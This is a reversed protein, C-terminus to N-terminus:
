NLDLVKRWAKYQERVEFKALSEELSEAKSLLQTRYVNM